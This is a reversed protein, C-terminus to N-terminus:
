LPTIGAKIAAWVSAIYLAPPWDSIPGDLTSLTRIDIVHDSDLIRDPIEGSWETVVFPVVTWGNYTFTPLRRWDLPECGLEEAMERFLAEVPAEGIEVRGGPFSWAANFPPEDRWEMAAQNDENVLMFTVALKNKPTTSM